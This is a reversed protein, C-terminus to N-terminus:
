IMFVTQHVNDNFHVSLLKQKLFSSFKLPCWGIQHIIPRSQCEPIARLFGSKLLVTRKFTQLQCEPNRKSFRIIIFPEIQSNM